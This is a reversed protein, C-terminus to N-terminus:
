IDPGDALAEAESRPVGYEMLLNVDQIYNGEGKLLWRDGEQKLLVQGAVGHPHDDHEIFWSALLWDGSTMIPGVKIKADNIWDVGNERYDKVLYNAIMMQLSRWTEDPNANILTQANSLNLVSGIMVLTFADLKTYITVAFLFM